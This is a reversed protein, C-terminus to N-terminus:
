VELPCQILVESWINSIMMFKSINLYWVHCSYTICFATLWLFTSLSLLMVYLAGFNSYPQHWSYLMVSIYKLIVSHWQMILKMWTERSCQRQQQTMPFLVTHTKEEHRLISWGHPLALFDTQFLLAKDTSVNRLTMFTEAEWSLAMRSNPTQLPLDKLTRGQSPPAKAHILEQGLLTWKTISFMFDYKRRDMHDM